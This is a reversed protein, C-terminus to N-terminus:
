SCDWASSGRRRWYASSRTTFCWLGIKMLPLDVRDSLYAMEGHSNAVGAARRPWSEFMKWSVYAFSLRQEASEMSVASSQERQFALISDLKTRLSLLGCLVLSGVVLIRRVAKCRSSCFSSWGLALDCLWNARTYSCYLGALFLLTLPPIVLWALGTTQTIECKIWPGPCTALGGVARCVPLRGWSLVRSQVASRVAPRPNGLPM